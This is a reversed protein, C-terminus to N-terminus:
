LNGCQHLRLGGHDRRDRLSEEGPTTGTEAICQDIPIRMSPAGFQGGGAYSFDLEKVQRLKKGKIKQDVPYVGANCRDEFATLETSTIDTFSITVRLEAGDTSGFRKAEPTCVASVSITGVLELNVNTFTRLKPGKIHPDHWKSGFGVVTLSPVDIGDTSPENVPETPVRNDDCSLLAAPVLLATCLLLHQAKM